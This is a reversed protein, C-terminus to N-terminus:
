EYVNNRHGAGSVCVLWKGTPVVNITCLRSVGRRMSETGSCRFSADAAACKSTFTSRCAARLVPRRTAASSTPATAPISQHTERDVDSTNEGEEDRRVEVVDSAGEGERIRAAEM